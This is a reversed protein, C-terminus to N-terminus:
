KNTYGCIYLCNTYSVWQNICAKYCANQDFEAAFSISALASFLFIALVLKKSTLPNM